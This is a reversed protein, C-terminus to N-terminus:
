STTRRWLLDMRTLSWYGLGGILAAGAGFQWSVPPAEWWAVFLATLLLVVPWALLRVAMSLLDTARALLIFDALTRASFVIAAGVLGWTSVAGWLALLYPGLEALHCKAVTDPRGTAQLYNYPVIAMSNIWFGLCLVRAAQGADAAMEPSIWWALFHDTGLVAIAIPLTTAVAVIQLARRSLALREAPTTAAAIRPFLAYNLSASLLTAREALQFPVTYRSVAKADLQAGIAFRDLVIMLPGVTASVTFWGGFRLLRRAVAWSGGAGRLRVANTNCVAFMAVVAAIRVTLVAGVLNPLEPGWTAAVVLPVLLMSVNAAVGIVSIQAFLRHAQLSGTLVSAVTTAPILALAWPLAAHLETLLDATATFQHAFFWIAIPAAVAAGLAGLGLSLCLATWVVTARESTPRAGMQALHQAAAQGLGLDSLGFYGFLLWVLSLAGYRAEGLVRLYVPITALAVVMPVVHGILNYITHRSISVVHIQESSRQDLATLRFVLWNEISSRSPM